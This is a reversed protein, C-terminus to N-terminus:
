AYQSKIEGALSSKHSEKSKQVYGRYAKGKLVCYKVYEGKKLGHDPSPGSVTRVKGKKRICAEFAKPM